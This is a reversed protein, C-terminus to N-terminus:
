DHVRSGHQKLFDVIDPISTGPGFIRAVGLQQLSLQDDDPIIGGVTVGVDNMGAQKLREMVRPVQTMHAGSLMSLGLWDVDEDAAAQVVAEATQWLGAYIVHFGADRLGRAVVKIGRDHGDLGVKALLVRIAPQM